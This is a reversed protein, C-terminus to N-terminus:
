NILNLYESTVPRFVHAAETEIFEIQGKLLHMYVVWDGDRAPSPMPMVYGAEGGWPFHFSGLAPRGWGFDVKSVAFRQGSSVVLAPGDSSGSCYIRALAPEPRHAEVWDILGLFHEKTVAGELYEHVADRHGNALTQLLSLQEATVYYIRSIFPDAGGPQPARPPPLASILVYMEDLSPDYSGPRRINLLSRRFSPVVSLPKCLAMEAWSVLFMNASYADAIRHDFTCGVVVGGCKLETVQVCLVGHQKKPVLKGEISDDPNYLSLDHLKADAYAETFDVGQNNCLLEPEGVSNSVVEGAFAYYSVLAQALAKRLVGAM